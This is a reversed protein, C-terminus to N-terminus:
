KLYHKIVGNVAYFCFYFASRLRGIGLCRLSRYHMKASKLKNSTKASDSRRYKLLPENIGCASGYKGLIKVWTIYDEHCEDHGMPFERAIDAKIVVSSCNICNGRLLKKKTITEPVGVTHGTLRGDSETFERGTTCLPSGTRKLLEIQKELKGETWWDDGDLFAIYEAKANRVGENRCASAGRNKPFSVLKFCINDNEYRSRCKEMVARTDDKSADNIIIIELPLGQAAASSISKELTKGCNYAPIVVSVVPEM